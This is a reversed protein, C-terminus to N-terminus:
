LFHAYAAPLAAVLDDAIFNPGAARAAEAHLWAAEGAAEFPRSGTALRSAALGALVDGTGASALWTPAPPMYGLREDPAAIVTDPGKALVTLGSRGALERAQAVKDGAAIGLTECLKALEGEHPTLLLRAADVGELLDDDLLHLADADLVTPMGAGLAAGLRRRADEGRGLGPGILLASWRRDALASDLEGGDVVLAAPAAPHSHASLLKVYGAGGRMAATASLIAAGPMAGAVIGVLGRMYKHADRAPPTFRPRPVLRAAGEVSVIGIDVLRTEGLRGLAPMRFHAPKWAGLALTLDFSPVEGLLTGDDAAIGSPLDIAVAFDHTAVLGALLVEHNADLPRSLGSGFLCDVFVGGHAGDYGRAVDGSWANRADRAADTKPESPAIVRVTLGAERLVRAIVYGDGGNNGPGCLVTVSRGTAVRRIWEAAGHGARDMLAVVSTGTIVLANEAARMEAATLVQDAARM